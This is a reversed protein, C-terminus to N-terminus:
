GATKGIERLLRRVFDASIQSARACNREFDAHSGRGASDTITRVAIFPVRNVYCVHAAAGTEMDVSLPAFRAKVDSRRQDDIFAEGTVMRGWFVREGAAAAAKSAQLMDKSAAFWVSPLWPHFETLIDRGVDHYAAETSVVTDFARLRDDMAGATGANIVAGCRFSDILIQAALAANVKCAGSYLATVSQGSIKGTHFTLMAKRVTETGEMMPLFPKLEDDGACLIGINM